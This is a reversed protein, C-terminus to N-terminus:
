SKPPMPFFPSTKLAYAEFDARGKYKRELMPVGSVYRLLYTMLLPSVVTMWGNLYPLAMLFFGWWQVADGFYNPHRTYKWLGTTIIKGANAPDSKFQKLQYDGASEFYFGICWIIVGTLSIWNFSFTDSLNILMVPLAIIYLFFGQLLFVQLFSRLYVHKWEERWQRYRFDEPKGVSRKYIHWALRVGWITVLINALLAHLPYGNMLFSVWALVVFGLGWAVDAVDNRQRIVSIIFWAIVYGLLVLALFLWNNM